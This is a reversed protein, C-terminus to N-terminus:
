AKKCVFDAAALYFRVQEYYSPFFFCIRVNVRRINNRSSRSSVDKKIPIEMILDIVRKRELILPLATNIISIFCNQLSVISRFFTPRTEEPRLDTGAFCATVQVQWTEAPAVYLLRLEM